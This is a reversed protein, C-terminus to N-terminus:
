MLLWPKMNFPNKSSKQISCIIVIADWKKQCYVDGSGGQRMLQDAELDQSQPYRSVGISASLSVSNHQLQVPMSVADLIRQAIKLDEEEDGASNLLLIFEDGGLRAAIDSHRICQQIRCTIEKLLEDGFYHGYTDNVQKFGDLDLYFVSIPDHLSAHRMAQSLRESFLVRNPLGTLQDYHAIKQLQREREMHETVDFSVGCLAYTEGQENILPIKTTDLEQLTGLNPNWLSENLRYVKQSQMVQKDICWRQEVENDYVFERDSKELLDQTPHKLLSTMLKNAFLYDGDTTKMYIYADISNLITRLQAESKELSRSFDLRIRNQRALIMIIVAMLGMIISIITIEKWFIMLESPKHFLVLTDKPLDSMSIGFHDLQRKDVESVNPSKSLIPIDSVPTGTLIQKIKLAAQRAQERHSIVVGGFVGDGIGHEFPHFIPGNSAALILQLSKKFSLSEEHTDRYASLLLIADTKPLRSLRQSLSTWSLEGLNLMTFPLNPFDKQLDATSILDSSGSTTGDSIVHLRKMKPFLDQALTITERISVAEVIGTVKPNDELVNALGLNNVGLFVVPVGPFYKEGKSLMFHLANDDATVVLDYPARASIKTKLSQEFLAVSEKTYLRKSDMYEIEIVPPHDGFESLLGDLVKPATPFTPHYSYLLLIRQESFDLGVEDNANLSTMAAFLGLFAIITGRILRVM